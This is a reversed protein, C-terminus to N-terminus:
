RFHHLPLGEGMGPLWMPLHRRGKGFSRALLAPPPEAMKIKLHIQLVDVGDNARLGRKM